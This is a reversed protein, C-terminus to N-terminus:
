INIVQDNNNNNDSKAIKVNDNRSSDNKAKKQYCVFSFFNHVWKKRWLFNDDDNKRIQFNRNSPHDYFFIVELFCCVQIRSEFHM